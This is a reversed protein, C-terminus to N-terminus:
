QLIQGRVHMLAQVRDSRFEDENVYSISGYDEEQAALGGLPIGDVMM